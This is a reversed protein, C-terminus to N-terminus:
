YKPEGGVNFLARKRDLYYLYNAYPVDAQVRHDVTPICGGQEVLPRLRELEADIAERGRLLAMKDFGGWLRIGKGFRKRLEVPDSGGNVEVPFMTNLGNGVFIDAVPTVNGDCDTAYVCCGHSNLTDAIRRYWPGAVDAFAGPEVIPGHNFCIDEWGIGFDV